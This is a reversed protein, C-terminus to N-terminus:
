AFYTTRIPNTNRVLARIPKMNVSMQGIPKRVPVSGVSVIKQPFNTGLENKRIANIINMKNVISIKVM